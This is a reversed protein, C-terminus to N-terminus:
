VLVYGIFAELILLFLILLGRLWVGKLRYRFNFLGKFFHMYIFIFFLRAGNFHFIRYLWGRNVETMIYQVRDFSTLSDNNYFLTLLFGTVIQFVLVM